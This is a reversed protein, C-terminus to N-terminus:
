SRNREAHSAGPASRDGMQTARCWDQTLSEPDDRNTSALFGVWELWGARHTRNRTRYGDSWRVGSM